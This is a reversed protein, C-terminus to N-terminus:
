KPPLPSYKFYLRKLVSLIKLVVFVTLIFLIVIRILPATHISGRSFGYLLFTIVPSIIAMLVKGKFYLKPSLKAKKIIGLVQLHVSIGSWAVVASLLMYRALPSRIANIVSACGGSCEFFGYIIAKCLDYSLGLSSLANIIGLSEIFSILIGFIVVFGCVTFTLQASSSVSQTLIEGFSDVNEKGSSKGRLVPYSPVSRIILAVSLSSLVHSLYILAGAGSNGLMGSGLAGIIFMPGSNNCFALLKEAEAKTCSGDLYLDTATKAGVPYGSIYGMIMALSCSGGLGFLPKMLPTLLKSFIDAAGLNILISSCVFFPFLSPLLSDACLKLAAKAADLSVSSFCVLLLTYVAAPIIFRSYKM